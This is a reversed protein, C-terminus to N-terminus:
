LPMTLTARGNEQKLDASGTLVCVMLRYLTVPDDLFHERIMDAQMRDAVRLTFAMMPHDSTDVACTVEFGKDLPEITVRTDQEHRARALLQVAAGLAQERLTYPVITVLQAAAQRGADTMSLHGDESETLNGRAILDDIAASTEFFNAIENSTLIEVVATRSLPQDVGMLMYCILIKIDQSNYLGGLRVGDSFADM